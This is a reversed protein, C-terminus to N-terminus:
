GDSRLTSQRVLSLPLSLPPSLSLSSSLSPCPVLSVQRHTLHGAMGIPGPPDSSRLQSLRSTMWDSDTRALCGYIGGGDAAYGQSGALTTGQAQLELLTLQPVLRQEPQDRLNHNAAVVHM